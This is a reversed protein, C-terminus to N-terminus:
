LFFPRRKVAYGASLIVEKSAKATFVEEGGDKHSFEVGTIVLEAGMQTTVLRCAHAGTLMNLNPRASNTQWYANGAFSRQITKPDVTMPGLVVGNPQLDFDSGVKRSLYSLSLVSM